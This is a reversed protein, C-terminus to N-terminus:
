GAAQLEFREAYRGGLSLLEAWRDRSLDAFWRPNPGPGAALLACKALDLTRVFLCTMVCTPKSSPPSKAASTRATMSAGNSEKWCFRDKPPTTSGHSSSSWPPM